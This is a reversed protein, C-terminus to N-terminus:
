WQFRRISANIYSNIFTDIANIEKTITGILKNTRVSGTEHLTKADDLTVLM